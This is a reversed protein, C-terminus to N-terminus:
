KSYCKSNATNRRTHKYSCSKRCKNRRNTKSWSAEEVTNIQYQIKFSTNTTLTTSAKYNDWEVPSATINGTELGEDAGPVTTTTAQTTGTGTNGANDENVIVQIDYTTGQTLGTFTYQANSVNSADSPTTYSGAGSQKIQFTYTPSAVMGSENDEAQATVTISNTSPSGQATVTVTPDTTDQITFEAEPGYTTQSANTLCATVTDGHSLGTISTGNYEQWDGQGNIKYVITYQSESGQLM